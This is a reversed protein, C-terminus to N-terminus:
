WPDYNRDLNNDLGKKKNITLYWIFEFSIPNNFSFNNLPSEPNGSIVWKLIGQSKGTIKCNEMGESLDLFFVNKNKVKIINVTDSWIQPNSKFSFM